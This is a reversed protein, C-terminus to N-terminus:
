RNGRRVVGRRDIRLCAAHVFARDSERLAARLARVTSQENSDKATQQLLEFLQRRAILTASVDSWAGDLAQRVMRGTAAVVGRAMLRHRARVLQGGGQSRNM